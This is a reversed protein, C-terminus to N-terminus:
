NSFESHCGISSSRTSLCHNTVMVERTLEMIQSGEVYALFTNENTLGVTLGKIFACWNAHTILVSKPMGTSGSTNLITSVDASEFGNSFDIAPLSRAEKMLQEYQFFEYQVQRIEKDDVESAFPHRFCILKNVTPIKQKLKNLLKVFNTQTLVLQIQNQDLLFSITSEHPTSRLLLVECGLSQLAFFMIFFEASTEAFIAVRVGRKLGFRHHLVKAFDRITGLVQEYSRWEYEESLEFKVEGKEIKKSLVTRIGLCRKGKHVKGVLELLEGLHNLKKLSNQLVRNEESLKQENSSPVAQWYYYNGNPEYHREGTRTKSPVQVKWPRDILLFVPLTILDVITSVFELVSVIFRVQQNLLFVLFVLTALLLTSTILLIM